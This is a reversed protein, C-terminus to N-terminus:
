GQRAGAEVGCWVIEGGVGVNEFNWRISKQGDQKSVVSVKDGDREENVGIIQNKM